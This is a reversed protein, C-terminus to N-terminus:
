LVYIKIKSFNVPKILSKHLTEDFWTAALECVDLPVQPLDLMLLPLTGCRDLLFYTRKLNGQDVQILELRDSFTM